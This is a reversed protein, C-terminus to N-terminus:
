CFSAQMQQSICPQSLPLHQNLRQVPLPEGKTKQLPAPSFASTHRTTTFTTLSVCAMVQTKSLFFDSGFPPRSKSRANGNRSDNKRGRAPALSRSRQTTAAVVTPNRGGWADWLADAARIMAVASKHNGVCVAERMSPPLRILFTALFLDNDPSVGLPLHQKAQTEGHPRQAQPVADRHPTLAAWFLVAM